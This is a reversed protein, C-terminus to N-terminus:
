ERKIFDILKEYLLNDAKNLQTIMEVHSKGALVEYDVKLNYRRIQKFFKENDLTLFPYTRSGTLIMFPIHRNNIFNIPSAQKWVEPDKTFIKEIYHLYLAGHDQIFSGINLGFADILICGKIPNDMNLRDFYQHDLAILASLHGGASHGCVTIKSKNGGFEAANKYIWKVAAACDAAMKQFNVIDGLRYNIIASVIGKSALNRGFSSYIDKSGNIWTGGHIFVLIEAPQQLNDHYFVDLLHKVRHFEHDGEPIYNINRKEGM